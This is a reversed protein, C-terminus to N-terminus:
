QIRNINIGITIAGIVARSGAETVPLSIQALNVGTSDDYQIKDIFIKGNGENYSVKFKDEDGQWFDSTADSLGVICGQNDMLFIESYLGDSNGKIEQLKKSTENEFYQKFMPDKGKSDIWRKDLEKIAALTRGSNGKNVGAIASAFVPDGLWKPIVSEITEILRNSVISNTVRNEIEYQSVDFGVAENGSEKKGDCGTLLVVIMLAICIWITTRTRKM